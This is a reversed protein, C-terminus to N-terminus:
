RPLGYWRVANRGFLKERAEGSVRAAYDATVAAMKMYGGALECMPWDSGYILRDEGFAEFCVDLYPHFVDKKWETWNAETVMGSIKCAVNPREALAKIKTAWPEIEGKAIFPKALHDLVLPADEFRDAFQIAADLQKPYVLIDYTLGRDAVERVGRCFDDRLLYNSDKEDQVLHRVGKFKPHEKFEDLQAGAEPSCLDVWGVVGLIYPYQDALDLMWRTEDLNQRVQVMLAGDIEHRQLHQHLDPPMHDVRLSAMDDGMWPYEEPDYKWCHQHADIRM